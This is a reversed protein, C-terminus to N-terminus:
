LTVCYKVGTGNGGTGDSGSNCKTVVSDTYSSKLLPSNADELYAELVYQSGDSNLYYWYSSGSTPDSPVQYIGINANTLISGLGNAGSVTISSNRAGPYAGTKNYYLAIGNQLNRLDAVRRADRGARQTPGLGVLIVSALIGIIAVVILLEILTFGKKSLLQMIQTYWM